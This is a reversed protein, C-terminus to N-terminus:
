RKGSSTRPKVPPEGTSVVTLRSVYSTMFQQPSARGLRSVVCDRGQEKAEYLYRDAEAIVAKCDLQDSFTGVGFSASVLGVAQMPRRRITRRMREAIRLAGFLDTEPCILLFEEGGWRGLHDSTRMKRRTRRAITTLVVDGVPHGYTDNVSKFHDVDFMVVSLPKGYRLSRDFEHELVKLTKRRNYLGTLADTGADSLLGSAEHWRRWAFLAILISSIALTLIWELLHWDPHSRVLVMVYGGWGGYLIVGFCATCAVILAGLDRVGSRHELYWRQLARWGGM